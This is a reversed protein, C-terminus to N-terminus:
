SGTKQKMLSEFLEGFLDKRRNFTDKSEGHDKCREIKLEWGRTDGPKEPIRRKLKVKDKKKEFKVIDEYPIYDELGGMAASMISATMFGMKGARFAVGNNTLVLYGFKRDRPLGTKVIEAKSTYLVKDSAPIIKRLKEDLADLPVLINGESM